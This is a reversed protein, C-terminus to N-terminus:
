TGIGLALTIWYLQLIIGLGNWLHHQGTLRFVQRTAGVHLMSGERTSCERLWLRCARWTNGTSLSCSFCSLAYLLFSSCARKGEKFSLWLMEPWNCHDKFSLMSKAQMVVLSCNLVSGKEKEWWPSFFLTTDSRGPNPARWTVPLPSDQSEPFSSIGLAEWGLPLRGNSCLTGNVMSLPVPHSLAYNAWQRFPAASM